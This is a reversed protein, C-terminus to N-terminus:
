RADDKERQQQDPRSRETTPNQKVCWEDFLVQEIASAKYRVWRLGTRGRWAVGVGKHHIDRTRNFASIRDATMAPVICCAVRENM